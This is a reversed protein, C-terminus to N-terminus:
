NFRSVDFYIAAVFLIRLCYTFCSYVIKYLWCFFFLLFAAASFIVAVYLYKLSFICIHHHWFFYIFSNLFYFILSVFLWNVSSAHLIYVCAVFCNVVVFYLRCYLLCHSVALHWCADSSMFILFIVYNGIIFENFQCKFRSLLLSHTHPIGSHTYANTSRLLFERLRMLILVDDILAEKNSINTEWFCVLYERQSTLYRM